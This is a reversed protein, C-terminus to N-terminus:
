ITDFRHKIKEKYDEIRKTLEALSIPTYNIQECSVCFYRPDKEYYNAGLHLMINETHLHGHVNVGWRELSSPHIPVHSLVLGHAKFPLISFVEEFYKLYTSTKATDHNGRVLFKRGNLRDLIPLSSQKLTIDGLHYVVDNSKRVVSNWNYIITDNMEEISDFQRVRRGNNEFTLINSHDFHTDAIFFVEGM